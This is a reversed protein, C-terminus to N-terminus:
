FYFFTDEGVPDYLANGVGDYKYSDEIESLDIQDIGLRAFFEAYEENPPNLLHPDSPTYGLRRTGYFYNIFEQPIEGNENFSLYFSYHLGGINARIHIWRVYEAIAKSSGFGINLDQDTLLPYGKKALAGNLNEIIKRYEESLSSDKRLILQKGYNSEELAFAESEKYVRYRELILAASREAYPLVKEVYDPCSQARRETRLFNVYASYVEDQGNKEEDGSTRSFNGLSYGREQRLFESRDGEKEIFVDERVFIEFSYGYFYRIGVIGPNNEESLTIKGDAILDNLITTAVDYFPKSVVSFAAGVDRFAVETGVPPSSPEPENAEGMGPNEAASDTPKEESDTKDMPLVQDKEAPLIEDEERLGSSISSVSTESTETKPANNETQEPISNCASATFTTLACVSLCLLKVIGNKFKKM